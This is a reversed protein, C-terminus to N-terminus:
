VLSRGILRRAEDHLTRWERTDFHAIEAASHTRDLVGAERAAREAAM